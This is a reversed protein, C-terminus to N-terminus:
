AKSGKESRGKKRGEKGVKEKSGNTKERNQEYWAFGLSTPVFRTPGTAMILRRLVLRVLEGTRLKPYEIGEVIARLTEAEEPTLPDTEEM